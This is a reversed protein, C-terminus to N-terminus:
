PINGKSLATPQKNFEKHNSALIFGAGGWDEFRKKGFLIKLKEATRPTEIGASGKTEVV